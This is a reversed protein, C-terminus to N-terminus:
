PSDFSIPQLFIRKGVAPSYVPEGWQRPPILDGEIVVKMAYASLIAWVMTNFAFSRFKKFDFLTEFFDHALEKPDQAAGIQKPFPLGIRLPTNYDKLTNYAEEYRAIDSPSLPIHSYDSLNVLYGRELIERVDNLQVKLHWRIEKPAFKESFGINGGPVPATEIIIKAANLFYANAAVVLPPSIQTVELVHAPIVLLTDNDLQGIVVYTKDPIELIPAVLDEGVLGGFFYIPVTTGQPLVDVVDNRINIGVASKKALYIPTDQRTTGVQFTQYGKREFALSELIPDTDIGGVRFGKLAERIILATAQRTNFDGLFIKNGLADEYDVLNGVVVQKKDSVYVKENWGDPLFIRSNPEIRFSVTEIKKGTALDIIKKQQENLNFSLSNKPLPVAILLRNNDDGAVVNRFVIGLFIQSDGEVIREVILTREVYPFNITTRQQMEPSANRWVDGLNGGFSTLDVVGMKKEGVFIEVRYPTLYNIRLDGLEQPIQRQYGLQSQEYLSTFFPMLLNTIQLKTQQDSISYTYWEIIERALKKKLFEEWAELDNISGAENILEQAKSKIISEREKFLPIYDYFGLALALVDLIEKRQEEAGEKGALSALGLQGWGITYLASYNKLLEFQPGGLRELLITQILSYFLAVYLLHAVEEDDIGPTSWEELILKALEEPNKQSASPKKTNVIGTETNNINETFIKFITEEGFPIESSHHIFYRAILSISPAIKNALLNCATQYFAGESDPAMIQALEDENLGNTKIISLIETPRKKKLDEDSIDFPSNISMKEIITTTEERKGSCGMLLLLLLVFIPAECLYKLFERRTCRNNLIELTEIELTEQIPKALIALSILLCTRLFDRTSQNKIETTM